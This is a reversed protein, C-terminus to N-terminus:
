TKYIVNNKLDITRLRLSMNNSRYFSETLNYYYFQELVTEIGFLKNEM